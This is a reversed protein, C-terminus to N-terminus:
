PSPRAQPSPRPAPAAPRSASAPRARRSASGLQSRDRHRDADRNAFPPAPAAPTVTLTATRTTGNYAATITVTTTTAVPSTTIAFGATFSNAPATTQAPVSAVAPNSSSLAILAGGELAGVSLVVTGFSSNGGVVTSPNTDMTSLTPPPPAPQPTFSRVASWAGPVGASNVGRVRWFHPITALGSAVYWSAGATVDRVLPASFASSDDVQITYSVASAVDSRDFGVPQATNDGNSPAQLAPAAPIAPPAPPTSSDSDIAIKTVFADGWFISPDGNFITDFAGTTAPFDMSYTHGAVYVDGASDLAVDNGSESLTGGLYTSYVLASGNASLKSVFADATGNFSSDAAGATVPFDASSTGGTVWANGAGDLAIGSAGESATGGFVASYALASGAANLKTVFADSGDPVTNFAGPTTPFDISGTGGSVYASGAADVTLGGGSDFGEGGLFTSYLLASGTPNLKTVFVDFAGNATTDFAGATTPFDASSTFGMAYANGAADVAVREGDDVQVGGLFTSYVLASGAANLRTVFVDYAGNHVRDFASATTPFDRSVTEGIVYASGAGDVAIGRADDIDTGGLFTSYVLASGAANLKTVFTDYQDIGCRPCNAINFTRDFAGGTTPFNSSKTQGTVYANGAADIAIRRGFDFNTGGIFTSYVLATGTANLKSVFVDSFNNTAGTRRFSGPRTPFDPSQTTGVVYANGAADVAIGTAFEHSAGGLFTSYEVGPDIVLERDPQYSGVAFGYRGKDANLVYRSEVPVRVGAITQYAVPASDRLVGMDTKILLAGTNDLALGDSGRYALGIDAIRAGPRVRFEYKLTGAQERLRLDVGPWLERSVIQEYRPLATRWRAPDNGRFYNVEGPAREDGLVARPNGGLFQLSIALHNMFSLVLEDRTLYFAYRPGEAYYRVRADIQGRNEVFAIPLNAYANLLQEPTGTLAAPTPAAPMGAGPLHVPTSRFASAASGGTWTAIVVAVVGAVASATHRSSRM